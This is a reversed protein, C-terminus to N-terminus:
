VVSTCTIETVVPFDSRYASSDESNQTLIEQTPTRVIVQCPLTGKFYWRFGVGFSVPFYTFFPIGSVFSKLNRRMRPSSYPYSRPQLGYAPRHCPSPKPLPLSATHRTELTLDGQHSRCLGLWSFSRTPGVEVHPQVQLDPRHLHLHRAPSSHRRPAPREGVSCASDDLTTSTTTSQDSSTTSSSVATM